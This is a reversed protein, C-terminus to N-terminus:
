SVTVIGNCEEPPQPLSCREVEGLETGDNQGREPRRDSASTFNSLSDCRQWWPPEGWPRLLFQMDGGSGWSTAPRLGEVAGQRTLRIHAVDGPCEVWATFAGPWGGRGPAKKTGQPPAPAEVGAM